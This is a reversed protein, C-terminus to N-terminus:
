SDMIHAVHVVKILGSLYGFFFFNFSPVGGGLSKSKITGITLAKDLEWKISFSTSLFQGAEQYFYVM